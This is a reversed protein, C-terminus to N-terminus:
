KNHNRLNPCLGFGRYRYRPATEWHTGCSSCIWKVNKTYDPFINDPNVINTPDWEEMLDPALAALTNKGPTPRKGSCFPCEPNRRRETTTAEWECNCIHCHWRILVSANSQIESPQIVNSDAWDITLDNHEKKFTKRQSPTRRVFCYPCKSGYRRKTLSEAWKHGLQM